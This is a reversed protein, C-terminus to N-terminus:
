AKAIAVNSGIQWVLDSGVLYPQVAEISENTIAASVSKREEDSMSKAAPNMAVLAMTNLRPFIAPDSMRIKHTITEVSIGNFGGDALLRRLVAADPLSHRQDVIPGLHREAVRELDRILPIEQTALWTAVVLRGRPALVRHMERIAGTKDSFFQLGQHCSVVDFM